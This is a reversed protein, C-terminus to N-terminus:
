QPFRDGLGRFRSCLPGKMQVNKQGGRILHESHTHGQRLSGPHLFSHYLARGKSTVHLGRAKLVTWRQWELGYCPTIAVRAVAEKMVEKKGRSLGPAM